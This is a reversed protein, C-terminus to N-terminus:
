RLEVRCPWLRQAEISRDAIGVCQVHHHKLADPPFTVVLLEIEQVEMEVVIRERQEEPLRRREQGRQMAPEVQRLV